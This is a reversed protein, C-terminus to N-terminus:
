LRSVGPMVSPFVHATKDWHVTGDRRMRRYVGLARRAAMIEIVNSLVARPVARAGERWGYTHTVILARIALRWMLMFACLHLLIAFAGTAVPMPPLAGVARLAQTLGGLVLAAYGAILVMAAILTRRDHLRMWWEAPGGRWGLRDWGSLAIGAIWRSKQRVAAVLTAPFHARVAVLAGHADRIRVFASRGGLAAIRLGLEYDETLSQTDFHSGGRADAIAGLMSRDFGCGVGAAPLGAGIAERVVITRAHSEAFEDMYSGAIWASAPDALPLVPLQILAFRDILADFVTLEAHHVVDEADHLIVAKVPSGARAEDVLLARWMANLCDAKTTPGPRPNLVPRIRPDDILALAQATEPDNPYHGVYIRWDPHQDWAAIAHRLMAGIVAGEDWAAVFVAMTGPRCVMLRDSRARPHRRHVIARRWGGRAIWILDIVMDSLGGVAFGIAAFLTLERVVGNLASALVLTPAVGSDIGRPSAIKAGDLANAAPTLPKARAPNQNLADPMILARLRRGNETM